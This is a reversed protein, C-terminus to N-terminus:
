YEFCTSKKLNARTDKFSSGIVITKVETSYSLVDRSHIM